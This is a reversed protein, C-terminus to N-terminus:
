LIVILFINAVVLPDSEVNRENKLTITRSHSTKKNNEGVEQNIIEWITKSINSSKKIKKDFYTSKAVELKKKLEKNRKQLVTKLNPNNIQRAYKTLEIM